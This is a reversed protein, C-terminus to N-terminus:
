GLALRLQRELELLHERDLPLVHETYASQLVALRERVKDEFVSVSNQGDGLVLDLLGGELVTSVFLV